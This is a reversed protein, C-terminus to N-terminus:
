HLSEVDPSDFFSRDAPSKKSSHESACGAVLLMSFIILLTMTKAPAFFQRVSYTPFKETTRKDHEYYDIPASAHHIMKPPLAIRTFSRPSERGRLADDAQM